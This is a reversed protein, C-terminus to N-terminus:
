GRLCAPRRKRHNWQNRTHAGVKAGQGGGRGTSTRAWLHAQECRWGARGRTGAAVGPQVAPQPHAGRVGGGTLTDHAPSGPAPLHPEAPPGRAEWLLERNDPTRGFSGAQM